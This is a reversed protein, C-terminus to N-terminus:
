VEIPTLALAPRSKWYAWTGVKMVSSTIDNPVRLAARRSKELPTRCNEAQVSKVMSPLVNVM